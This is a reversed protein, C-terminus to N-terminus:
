QSLGMGLFVLDTTVYHGLTSTFSVLPSICCVFRNVVAHDPDDPNEYQRVVKNDVKMHKLGGRNTKNDYRVYELYVRGEKDVRKSFQEHQLNRHENYSRLSFFACKYFYVTNTLAQGNYAGFLGKAWLVAGEDPTIPEIQSTTTRLEMGHLRKMEAYLTSCFGGFLPDGNNLPNITHVKNCEFLHYCPCLLTKLQYEKGNHKRM